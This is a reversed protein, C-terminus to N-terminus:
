SSMFEDLASTRRNDLRSRPIMRPDLVVTMHRPNRCPTSIILICYSTIERVIPCRELSRYRFDLWCFRLFGAFFLFRYHTGTM